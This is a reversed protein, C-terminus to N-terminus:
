DKIVAVVHEADLLLFQRNDEDSYIRTGKYKMIVVKDSKSFDTINPDLKYVIGKDPVFPNDRTIPLKIGHETTDRNDFVEVLVKNNLMKMKDIISMDSYHIHVDLPM